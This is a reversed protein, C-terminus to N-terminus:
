RVERIKWERGPEPSQINYHNTCIDLLNNEHAVNHSGFTHGKWPGRTMWLLPYPDNTYAIIENCIRQSRATSNFIYLQRLGLHIHQKNPWLGQALWSFFIGPIYTGPRITDFHVTGRWFDSKVSLQWMDCEPWVREKNNERGRDVTLRLAQTIKGEEGRGGCVSGVHAGLGELGVKLLYPCSNNKIRSGRIRRYQKSKCM